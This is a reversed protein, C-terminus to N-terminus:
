EAQVRLVLEKPFESGAETPIRLYLMGGQSGEPLVRHLARVKGATLEGFSSLLVSLAPGGARRSWNALPGEVHIEQSADLLLLLAVPQAEQNLEVAFTLRPELGPLLTIAEALASAGRSGAESWGIGPKLPTRKTLREPLDLHRLNGAQGNAEGVSPRRDAPVFFFSVYSCDPIIKTLTESWVPQGGVSLVMTNPFQRGRFEQWTLEGFSEFEPGERKRSYFRVPREDELEVFLRGSDGPIEVSRGRATPKWDFGDPWLMLARRLELQLLISERDEGVAEASTGSGPEITYFEDGSRYRLRRGAGPEHSAGFWWHAQEAGQYTAELLQRSDPQSHFVVTSHFSLCNLALPAPPTSKPHRPEEQPQDCAFLLVLALLTPNLRM